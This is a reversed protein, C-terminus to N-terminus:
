PDHRTIGDRYLEYLNEVDRDVTARWSVWDSFTNDSLRQDYRLMKTEIRAMRTELTTIRELKQLQKEVEGIRYEAVYAFGGVAVLGVLLTPWHNALWGPIAPRTAM